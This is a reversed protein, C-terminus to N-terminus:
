RRGFDDGLLNVFRLTDGLSDFAMFQQVREVDAISGRQLFRNLEGLAKGDIKHNQLNSNYGELNGKKLWEALQEAKMAEMVPNSLVPVGMVAPGGGQINAQQIKDGGSPHSSSDDGQAASPAMYTGSLSGKIAAIVAPMTSALNDESTLDYWLKTGLLLGLWGKPAYGKEMMLPIIPLKQQAAYQGELRCNPSDKYQPSITMLILDSTDIGDAM